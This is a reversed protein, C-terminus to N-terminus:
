HKERTKIAQYEIFQDSSKPNLRVRQRLSETEQKSAKRISNMTIFCCSVVCALPSGYCLAAGAFCALHDM